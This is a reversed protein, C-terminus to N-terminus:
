GTAEVLQLGLKTAQKLLRRISQDRFRQDYAEQGVDQYAVHLRLLRYYQVAIKRAGATIAKAPGIRSKLRRIYAGMASNSNHLSQAAMRFYGSAPHSVKRTRSSKIKGGTIQNEPCLGLYSTFHKETPFRSLDSGLESLLGAATKCEIGDITTPDVGLINVIKTHLDFNPVNKSRGKSPPLKPGSDGGVSNMQEEIRADCDLICADFFDYTEIAQKLAFLHHEAWNGELAKEIQDKKKRASSQLHLSLVEPRREGGLIARIIAMGSVGSIDSLVKHIQINMQELSKHMLQIQEAKQAILRERQRWFSRLALIKAEPIACPRLLGHMYLDRIWQCDQVDTKRGPLAKASRGDVLAVQFGRSALLEYVPIWYVGTAEMAVDKVGHLKLWDAMEVLECTFCGFVKVEEDASRGPPLAVYHKISGLDIGAGDPHVLSFRDSKGM